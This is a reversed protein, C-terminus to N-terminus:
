PLPITHFDHKVGTNAEYLTLMYYTTGCDDQYSNCYYGYGENMYLDGKAKCDEFTSFDARVWSMDFKKPQCSSITQTPKTSMEDTTTVPNNQSTQNNKSTEKTVEVNSNLYNTNLSSSDNSNQEKSDTVNEELVSNDSQNEIVDDEDQNSVPDVKEQELESINNNEIIPVDSFIKSNSKNWILISTGILLMILLVSSTILYQKKYKKWIKKM